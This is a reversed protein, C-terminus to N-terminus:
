LQQVTLDTLVEYNRLPTRVGSAATKVMLIDRPFRWLTVTMRLLVWNVGCGVPFGDKADFKDFGILERIGPAVYPVKDSNKADGAIKWQAADVNGEYLERLLFATISAKGMATGKSQLDKENEAVLEHAVTRYGEAFVQTDAPINMLNWASREVARAKRGGHEMGSSLLNNLDREALTFCTAIWKLKEHLIVLLIIGAILVAAAVLSLASGTTAGDIGAQAPWGVKRHVLGDLVFPTAVMAGFIVFSRLWGPM